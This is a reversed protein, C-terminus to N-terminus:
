PLRGALIASVAELDINGGSIVAVVRGHGAEGTLAAALAAAGAGEAVVHNRIALLRLAAAAEEVGVVISGDLVSSVIPWMEALLGRGGIGDVFSPSREVEVPHGAAMSPALPAATAVEAAFVRTGPRLAKVAGAIGSSLGGGGFPVVVADVEPLDEV